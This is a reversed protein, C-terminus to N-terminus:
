LWHFVSSLECAIIPKDNNLWNNLWSHLETLTSKEPVVTVPATMILSAKGISGDNSFLMCSSFVFSFNNKNYTKVFCHWVTDQERCLWGAKLHMYDLRGCM